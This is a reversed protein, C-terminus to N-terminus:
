KVGGPAAPAWGTVLGNVAEHVLDLVAASEAVLRDIVAGEYEDFLRRGVEDGTARLHASLADIAEDYARDVPTGRMRSAILDQICESSAHGAEEIMTTM